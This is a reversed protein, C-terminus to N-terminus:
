AGAMQPTSAYASIKWGQATKEWVSLFLTDLAGTPLNLRSKGTMLVYGPRQRVKLESASTSLIVGPNAATRALYAEREETLGNIHAYYFTDALFSELAAMDGRSIAERRAHEVAFLEEELKAQELTM